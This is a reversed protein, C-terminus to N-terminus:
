FQKGPLPIPLQSALSSDAPLQQPVSSSIAEQMKQHENQLHQNMHQEFQQQHMQYQQQIADHLQQQQELTPPQQNHMMENSMPLPPLFSPNMMASQMNESLMGFSSPPPLLEQNPMNPDMLHNMLQPQMLDKEKDNTKKNKSADDKKNTSSKKDSRNTKDNTNLLTQLLTSKQEGPQKEMEMRSMMHNFARYPPVSASSVKLSKPKIEDTSSASAWHDNEQNGGSASGWHDKHEHKVPVPVPVPM